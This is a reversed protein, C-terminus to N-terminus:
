EIPLFLQMQKAEFKVHDLHGMQQEDQTILHLHLFSDHHTFVGQHETSFFGIIEVGINNLLYNIQGQHAEQPSSVRTGEPLNQIHIDAQNVKGFLKFAFPRKYDKTQQDIFEELTKITTITDPLSIEKWQNVNAYVFFPAALGSSREVTMTSDSEVRSVYTKGNNILLEGRLYTEPGLGYLGEKVALTDLQISPGLEGKWMVNRMASAVQVDAYTKESFPEEISNKCSLSLLLVFLLPLLKINM